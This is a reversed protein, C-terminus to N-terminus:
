TLTSARVEVPPVQLMKAHFGCHLDIRFIWVPFRGGIPVTVTVLVPVASEATDLKDVGCLVPLGDLGLSPELHGWDLDTITRHVDEVGHASPFVDDFSTDRTFHLDGFLHQARM